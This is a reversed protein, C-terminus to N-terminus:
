YHRHFYFIIKIWGENIRESKRQRVRKGNEKGQEKEINEQKGTGRQIVQMTM